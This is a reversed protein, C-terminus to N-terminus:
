SILEAASKHLIRDWTNTVSEPKVKKWANTVWTAVHQRTVKVKESGSNEVLFTLYCEKVYDKFPKNIGVDLVQLKSTYGPPIMYITTGCDHLASQVEGMTHVRFQDLFLITPRSGIRRTYPAWVRKIWDLMVDKDVWAKEQVGYEIDQPYTSDDKTFERVISGNKSAKFIALPPLIEGSKMACLMVTIRNPDGTTKVHITRQGKIALTRSPPNDYYLNTEDMNGICEPPYGQLCPIVLDRFELIKEV